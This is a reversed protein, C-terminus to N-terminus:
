KKKAPRGEEKASKQRDASPLRIDMLDGQTSLLLLRLENEIHIAYPLVRMQLLVQVQNRTLNIGKYEMPLVFTCKEKWGSCGYATKGRIVKKGCM